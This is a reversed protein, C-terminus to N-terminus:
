FALTLVLLCRTMSILDSSNQADLMEELESSCHTCRLVGTSDLLQNVELDAFSSDCTKCVYSTRNRMQQYLGLTLTNIVYQCILGYKVQKEENEIKKRMLDLKYKVM